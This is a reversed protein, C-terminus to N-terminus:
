GAEPVLAALRQLVAKTFHPLDSPRRSTILNGDVVVPRDEYRAGANILDRKIARYCTAARNGLVDAEILMQPGHCIAAVTVGRKVADRVIAVLKENMRMRDPALGGPIVVCAVDDLDKIEGAGKTAELPYNHKSHYLGRKPGVVEVEFGAEKLRYYPYMAETDEFDNEILIFVRKM